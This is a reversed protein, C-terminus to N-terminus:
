SVREEDPLGLARRLAARARGLRSKVTGEEVGLAEAIEAYDFDHYARLVLVARQDAPLEAMAEVVQRTLERQGARRELDESSRMADIADLSVSPRAQRLGDICTRTAVTLIWTSLKAPGAPDYRHLNTLVKIMTDQALDDVVHGRGAMMRGVLAYVQRGYREILLAQASPDGRRARALTLDDLEGAPSPAHAM